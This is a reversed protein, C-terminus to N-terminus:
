CDAQRTVGHSVPHACEIETHYAHPCITTSIFTAGQKRWLTKTDQVAQTDLRRNKNERRLLEKQSGTYLDKTQPHHPPCLGDTEDNNGTLTAVSNLVRRPTDNRAGMDSMDANARTIENGMTSRMGGM